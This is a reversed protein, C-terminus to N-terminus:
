QNGGQVARLASAMEHVAAAVALLAQAIATQGKTDLTGHTVAVTIAGKATSVAEHYARTQADM